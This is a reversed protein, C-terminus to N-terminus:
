SHDTVSGESSMQICGPWGYPGQSLSTIGCGDKEARSRRTPFSGIRFRSIDAIVSAEIESFGGFFIESKAVNMDLGTWEKFTTLVKKIGFQPKNFM